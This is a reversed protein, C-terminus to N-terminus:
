SMREAAGEEQDASQKSETGSTSQSKCDQSSSEVGAVTKSGAKSATVIATTQTTDSSASGTDPPHFAATAYHQGEM